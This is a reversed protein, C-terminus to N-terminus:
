VAKGFDVLEIFPPDRQLNPKATKEYRLKPQESDVFLIYLFLLFAFAECRVSNALAQRRVSNLQWPKPEIHLLHIYFLWCDFPHTCSHQMIKDVNCRLNWRAVNMKISEDMFHTKQSNSLIALSNPIPNLLM